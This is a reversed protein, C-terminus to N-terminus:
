TTSRSCPPSRSRSASRRRSSRRASAPRCRRSAAPAPRRSARSPALHHRGRHRAPRRVAGGLRGVGARRARAAPRRRAGRPLARPPPAHARRAHPRLHRRDRARALLDRAGLARRAAPPRAPYKAAERSCPARHQGGAPREAVAAAFQARRRARGGCRSSASSSCRSRRSGWSSWSARRRGDGARGHAAVDRDLQVSMRERDGRTAVRDIQVPDPHDPVRHDAPGQLSRPEYKWRKVADARRREVFPEDGRM